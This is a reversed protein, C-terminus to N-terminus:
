FAVFACDVWTRGTQFRYFKFTVKSYRNGLADQINMGKYTYYFVIRNEHRWTAPKGLQAVLQRATQRRFHQTIDPYGGGVFWQKGQFQPISHFHSEEIATSSFESNNNFGSTPGPNVSPTHSPQNGNVRNQNAQFADLATDAFDLANDTNQRRKPDKIKSSPLKPKISRIRKPAQKLGMKVLFKASVGCGTSFILSLLTFITTIKMVSLNKQGTM